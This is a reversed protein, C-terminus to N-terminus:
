HLVYRLKFELIWESTNVVQAMKVIEDHELLFFCCAGSCYIYGAEFVCVFDGIPIVLFPSCSSYVLVLSHVSSHHRITVTQKNNTGQAGSSYRFYQLSDFVLRLLIERFFM